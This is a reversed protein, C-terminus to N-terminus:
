SPTTAQSARHMSRRLSAAILALAVTILLLTTLMVSSAEYGLIPQALSQVTLLLHVCMAYDQAEASLSITYNGPELETRYTTNFGVHISGSSWTANAISLYFGSFSTTNYYTWRITVTTTNLVTNNSPELVKIGLPTLPLYDYFTISTHNDKLPYPTDGYGDLDTDVGGYKLWYNGGLYPGGLINPGPTYATTNFSLQSCNYITLRSYRIYNNFFSCNHCNTLTLGWLDARIECNRVVCDNTNKFTLGDSGGIRCERVVCANAYQFYLGVSTRTINCTAITCAFVDLFHIGCVGDALSANAIAVHSMHHIAICYSRIGVLTTPSSYALELTSGSPLQLDSLQSPLQCNILFIAGYGTPDISSVTANVCFFVPKNHSLCSIIASSAYEVVSDGLIFYSRSNYDGSCGHLTCTKCREVFFGNSGGIASSEAVTCNESELLYFGYVSYTSSCGSILCNSSKHAAFGYTNCDATCNSVTCNYSCELSFGIAAPYATSQSITCNTCNELLFAVGMADATCATLSCNACNTLRFCYYRYFSATICSWNAYCFTVKKGGSSDSLLLLRTRSTVNEVMVHSTNNLLLCGGIACVDISGTFDLSCNTIRIHLTTNEVAIAIYDESESAEIVYGSIIIPDDATGSGPWGEAAAQQLLDENGCIHIPDHSVLNSSAHTFAGGYANLTNVSELWLTSSPLGVTLLLAITFFAISRSRQLNYLDPIKVHNAYFAKEFFLDSNEM